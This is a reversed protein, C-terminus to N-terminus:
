GDKTLIFPWGIFYSPTHPSNEEGGFKCPLLQKRHIWPGGMLAKQNSSISSKTM